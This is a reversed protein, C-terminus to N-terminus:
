KLLGLEPLKVGGSHRNAELPAWCLWICTLLAPHLSSEGVLMERATCCWKISKGNGCSGLSCGGRPHSEPSPLASYVEKVDQLHAKCINVHM